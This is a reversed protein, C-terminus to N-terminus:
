FCVKETLAGVIYPSIIGPLTAFTNSIGFIIGAYSPAIDNATLIFGGGYCCGSCFEFAFILLYIFVYLVYTFTVGITLLTVAVYKLKCTMFALAVVFIAPFLNGLVNFLKRTNTRTLIDKRILM